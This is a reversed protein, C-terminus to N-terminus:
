KYLMRRTETTTAFAPVETKGRGEVPNEWDIDQRWSSESFNGPIKMLCTWLLGAGTSLYTQIFTILITYVQYRYWTETDWEWSTKTNVAKDILSSLWIQQTSSEYRDPENHTINDVYAKEDAEDKPRYTELIKM